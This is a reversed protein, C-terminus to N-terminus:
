LLTPKAWIYAGLDIEIQKQTCNHAKDYVAPITLIMQNKGVYPSKAELDAGYKDLLEQLEYKFTKEIEDETNM